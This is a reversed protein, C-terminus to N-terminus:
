DVIRRKFDVNLTYRTQMHDGNRWTVRNFQVRGYVFLYVVAALVLSGLLLLPKLSELLDVFASVAIHASSM